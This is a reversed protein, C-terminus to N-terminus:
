FQLNELWFAESQSYISQSGYIISLGPGGEIGAGWSGKQALLSVAPAALLLFFSIIMTKNM